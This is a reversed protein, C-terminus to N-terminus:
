RVTLYGSEGSEAHEPENCFYYVRGRYTLNAVFRTSGGAAVTPSGVDGRALTPLALHFDHEDSSGVPDDDGILFTVKGCPVSPPSVTMRDLTVTVRAAAAQPHTCPALVGLLGTAPSTRARGSSVYRYPHTAVSVELTTRNGPDVLPTKKGAIKFDRSTRGKNVVAFRVRGAVVAQPALVVGADTLTVHVVSVARSASAGGVATAAAVLLIALRVTV